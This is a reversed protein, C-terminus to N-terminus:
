FRTWSFTETKTKQWKENWRYTAVSCGEPSLDILNWAAKKGQSCSGSDLVLPLRNSQLDAVTHRHTHGHLYLRIRPTEELCKQLAEARILNRRPEDNLLFPYHNLLLIPAEPPISKLIEKLFGEQRESFHGQSSYLHTAQATDLAIVWWGQPLAHAEIGHKALTFFDTPHHIRERENTFYRYFHKKRYSRKTYHDHNGPIAIWPSSLKEVFRKAQQFEEKMATTSFDGGLLIWDVKLEKLLSPLPDLLKEPFFNKRRFFFWNLHGLIRKSFLRFPNGTYQTFHFDSLHAIRM